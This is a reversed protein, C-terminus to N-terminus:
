RGYTPFIYSFVARLEENTTLESVVDTLSRSTMKFFPSFWALLGTRSLFKVLPLPVMKLITM